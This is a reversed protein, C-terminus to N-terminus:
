KDRAKEADDNRRIVSGMRGLKQKIAAERQAWEEARKRDQEDALRNNLEILRM